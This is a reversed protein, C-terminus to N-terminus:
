ECDLDIKTVQVAETKITSILELGDSEFKKALDQLKTTKNKPKYNHYDVFRIGNIKQSNLAERFRMGGGNVLFSYALFDIHHTATNIWYLYVDEFDQGGGDEQFRVEIKHYNQNNISEKGLHKKIVAADNLRYPLQVFYHVSNISESYLNALSDSVKQTNGNVKRTFEGKYFTDEIENTSDSFSRKLKFGECTPTSQYNKNRFSFNVKNTAFLETGSVAISKDIVEQAKSQNSESTCSYFSLFILLLSISFRM